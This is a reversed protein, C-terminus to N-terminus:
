ILGLNEYPTTFFIYLQVTKGSYLSLRKAQWYQHHSSKKGKQGIEASNKAEQGQVHNICM